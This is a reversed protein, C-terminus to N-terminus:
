RQTLLLIIVAVPSYTLQLTATHLTTPIEIPILFAKILNKTRHHSFERDQM